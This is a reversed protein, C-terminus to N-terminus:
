KIYEINENKNLRENIIEYYNEDKEIMLFKRNTLQCAVGTTGSGAFSDLVLDEPNSHKEILTKILEIPKQTPHSTREKGHCIPFRYVGNDYKSNFTPNSGKVFTFFYEISNSLYNVKSNVPVPNTKQWQCVRPQKFKYLTAIEKIETSKWIDYFIILTGGNKLIRYYNHFLFNWNLEQKDWDGFDISLNGYKTKMDSNTKDSTKKFGSSKSILYPPDILILDISEDEIEPLKHYCDSLFVKNV